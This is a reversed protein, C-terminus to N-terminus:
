TEAWVLMISWRGYLMEICNTSSAGYTELHRLQKTTEANNVHGVVANPATKTNIIECHEM